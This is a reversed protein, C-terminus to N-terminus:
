VCISWISQLSSCFVHYYSSLLLSFHTVLYIKQMFSYDWNAVQRVMEVNCGAKMVQFFERSKWIKMYYQGAEVASDWRIAKGKKRERGRESEWLWLSDWLFLHHHLLKVLYVIFSVGHTHTESTSISHPAQIFDTKM